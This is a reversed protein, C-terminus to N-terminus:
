EKGDNNLQSIAIIKFETEISKGYYRVAEEFREEEGMEGFKYENLRLYVSRFSHRQEKTNYFCYSVLLDFRRKPKEDKDFWTWFKLNM